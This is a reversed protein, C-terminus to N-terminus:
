ATLTEGGLAAILSSRDRENLDITVIGGRNNEDPSRVYLIIQLGGDSKTAPGIGELAFRQQGPFLSDARTPADSRGDMKTQLLTILWPFNSRALTVAQRSEDKAVFALTVEADTEREVEIGAIELM